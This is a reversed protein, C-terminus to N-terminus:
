CVQPEQNVAFYPLGKIVLNIMYFFSEASPISESAFISQWTTIVKEHQVTYNPGGPSPPYLLNHVLRRSGSGGGMGGKRWERLRDFKEITVSSNKLLLLIWNEDWLPWLCRIIVCIYCVCSLFFPFILWNSTNTVRCCFFDYLKIHECIKISCLLCM